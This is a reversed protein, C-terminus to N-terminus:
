LIALVTIVAAAILVGPLLIIVFLKRAEKQIPDAM